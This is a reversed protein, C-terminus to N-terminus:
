QSTPKDRRKAWSQRQGDAIKAKTEASLRSGHRRGQYPSPIWAVVDAKLLAFRGLMKRHPLRGEKIAAYIAARTVGKLTAAEQVTLLESDM